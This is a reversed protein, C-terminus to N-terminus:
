NGGFRRNRKNYENIITDIDSAQMDPWHKDLFFFESYNARWLMFNSLRQEGSTRVVLDIDPIDAGYLNSRIGEPTIPEGKDICAQAADAIEKQGGYNFCFAVTAKTFHKTVEEAQEIAALVKPPLGDRVGLVRIRAEHKAIEKLDDKLVKIVLKMLRGVEDKSRKWNETSFVYFSM